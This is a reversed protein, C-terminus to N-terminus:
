ITEAKTYTNYSYNAINNLVSEYANVKRRYAEDLADRMVQNTDEPKANLQILKWLADSKAVLLAEAVVELEEDTLVYM